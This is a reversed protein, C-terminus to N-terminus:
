CVFFGTPNKNCLFDLKPSVVSNSTHSDNNEICKFGTDLLYDSESNYDDSLVQYKLCMKICLEDTQSWPFAQSREM